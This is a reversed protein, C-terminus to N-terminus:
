AQQLQAGRGPGSSSAPLFGVKSRAGTWRVDPILVHKRALIRSKFPGLDQLMTRVETEVDVSPKYGLDFLKRHDPNYYHDESELRPNELPRIEVRLGLGGGVQQVIQALQTVNYVEQFQNLVRYEGKSAPNELALTLCQMSDRLPIFGRKQGGKGYPTLPHGMVAQCCFRNIVTGFAQDFDLRTMLAPATEAGGARTGFVVGQMVDTARLGWIRCAFMINNSGHVKSWHYWSGGQRPFPLRDRRGRYEIEFFGEPIDLNPTGYEGMTGLKVLHTDPSRHRIAFLLNFTTTLNNTQVFVAHHADVMSYPASPCEGFHVVADPRFERVLKDVFAYRRLDGKWFRLPKGFRKKFARLREAIPPTPIASWSGMEQVWKRRFFIDAGAVDHGRAALAQALPWGLYGDMGAILIRM